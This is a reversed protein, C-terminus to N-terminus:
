HNARLASDSVPFPTFPQIHQPWETLHNSQALSFYVRQTTNIFNFHLPFNRKKTNLYSMKDTKKGNLYKTEM